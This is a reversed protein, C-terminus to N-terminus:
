LKYVSLYHTECRNVFCSKAPSEFTAIHPIGLNRKPAYDIYYQVNGQRMMKIKKSNDDLESLNFLGICNLKAFYCTEYRTYPGAIRANKPLITALNESAVRQHSESYVRQPASLLAPSYIAFVHLSVLATAVMLPRQQAKNPRLYKVAIALLPLYVIWLYREEVYLLTYAGVVSIVSLALINWEHDRKHWRSAVVVLALIIAPIMSVYSIIGSITQVRGALYFRLNDTVSWDPLRLSSPDDWVWTDDPRATPLITNETAHPHQPRSPGVLSFNYTSATSLTIHGYKITLLTVWIGSLIVFVAVSVLTPKILNNKHRITVFIIYAVIILSIYIGISKSFYLTALASGSLIGHVISPNTFMRNVSSIVLLLILGSLADPHILDTLFWWASLLGATITLAPRVLAHTKQLAVNSYITKNVMWTFVISCIASVLWFSYLPDIGLWIFPVMLWSILPSWYGNIAQSFDFVSYYEAVRM